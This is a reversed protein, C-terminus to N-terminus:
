AVTLRCAWDRRIRVWTARRGHSLCTERIGQESERNLIDRFMAEVRGSRESDVCWSLPDAQLTCPDSESRALRM